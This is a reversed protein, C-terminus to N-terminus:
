DEGDRPAWADYTNVYEAPANTVYAVIKMHLTKGDKFEPGFNNWEGSGGCVGQANHRADQYDALRFPTSLENDIWNPNGTASGATRNSYDSFTFGHDFGPLSSHYNNNTPDYDAPVDNTM